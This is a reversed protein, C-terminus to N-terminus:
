RCVLDKVVDKKLPEIIVDTGDLVKQCALCPKGNVKIGCRGCVGHLCASHSYFAISGDQEAAIRELLSMATVHEEPDIEIQYERYYPEADKGPEFRFIRAIM